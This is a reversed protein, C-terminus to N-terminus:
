KTPMVSPYATLMEWNDNRWISLLKVPPLWRDVSVGAQQPLGQPLKQIVEGSKVTIGLVDEVTDEKWIRV